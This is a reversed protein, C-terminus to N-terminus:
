FLDHSITAAPHPCNGRQDPGFREFHRAMMKLAMAESFSCTDSGCDTRNLGVPDAARWVAGGSERDSSKVAVGSLRYRYAVLRAPLQDPTGQGAIM